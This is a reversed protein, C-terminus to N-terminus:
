NRSQVDFEELVCGSKYPERITALEKEGVGSEVLFARCVKWFKRSVNAHAEDTSGFSDRIFKWLRAVTTADKSRGALAEDLLSEESSEKAIKLLRFIELGVRDEM